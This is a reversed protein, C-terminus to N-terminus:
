CVHILVWMISLAWSHNIAPPFLSLPSHFASRLGILNILFSIPRCKYQPLSDGTFCNRGAPLINAPSGRGRCSPFWMGLDGVRKKKPFIGQKEARSKYHTMLKLSHSKPVTAHLVTIKVPDLAWPDSTSPESLPDHSTASRWFLLMNVTNSMVSCHRHNEGSVFTLLRGKVLWINCVNYHIFLPLLISYGLTTLSAHNTHCWAM